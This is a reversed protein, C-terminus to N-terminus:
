HVSNMFLYSYFPAPPTPPDAEKSDPLVGVASTATSPESTSM